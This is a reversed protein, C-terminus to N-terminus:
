PWNGPVAMGPFYNVFVRLLPFNPARLRDETSDTCYNEYDAGGIGNIQDVMQVGPLSLDTVIGTYNSAIDFVGINIATSGQYYQSESISSGNIGSILLDFNNNVINTNALLPNIGLRVKGAVIGTGSEAGTVGGGGGTNLDFIVIGGGFQKASM